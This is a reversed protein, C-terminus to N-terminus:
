LQLMLITGLSPAVWTRQFDAQQNRLLCRRNNTLRLVNWLGPLLVIKLHFYSPLFANLRFYHVSLLCAWDSISLVSSCRKACLNRKTFTLKKWLINRLKNVITQKGMSIAWDIIPRWFLFSAPNPVLDCLAPGSKTEPRQGIWGLGKSIFDSCYWVWCPRGCWYQNQSTLQRCFYFMYHSASGSHVFSILWSVM